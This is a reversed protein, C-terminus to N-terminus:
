ESKPWKKPSHCMIYLFYFALGELINNENGNRSLCASSLFKQIENGPILWAAMESKDIWTSTRAASLSSCLYLERPPLTVQLHTWSKKVAVPWNHMKPFGRYSETWLHPHWSFTTGTIIGGDEQWFDSAFIPPMYCSGMGTSFNCLEELLWQLTTEPAGTTALNLITCYPGNKWHSYTRTKVWSGHSKWPSM